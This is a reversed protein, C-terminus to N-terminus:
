EISRIVLSAYDPYRNQMEKKVKLVSAETPVLMLKLIIEQKNLFGIRVEYLKKM